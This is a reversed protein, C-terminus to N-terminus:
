SKPHGCKDNCALLTAVVREKRLASETSVRFLPSGLVHMPTINARNHSNAGDDGEGENSIYPSRSADFASNM